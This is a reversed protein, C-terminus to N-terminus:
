LTLTTGKYENSIDNIGRITVTTVLQQLAKFGVDLKPIMGDTISGHAKLDEYQSLNISDILQEGDMVGPRDFCFTLHVKYRSALEAAICGAITDANTNLMNGKGDHTLPAVVPVVGQELFVKLWESNVMEVDGVWGFNVPFPNRKTSHIINLDAGTLGIANQGKAQLKAVLKKNVLGGYVMTVVELTELSTIRRGDIMQTTIGLKDSIQTALVGGGHVLIKSGNLRYFENLFKDLLEDKEAIRGGIKIVKIVEM